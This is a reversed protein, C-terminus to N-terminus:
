CTGSYVSTLWFFLFTRFKFFIPKLTRSGDSQERHGWKMRHEFNKIGMKFVWAYKKFQASIKCWWLNRLHKRSLFQDNTFENQIRTTTLTLESPTVNLKSMLQHVSLSMMVRNLNLVASILFIFKLLHILLHFKLIVVMSHDSNLSTWVSHLLSDQSGDLMPNQHPPFFTIRCTNFLAPGLWCIWSWLGIDQSHILVLNAKNKSFILM